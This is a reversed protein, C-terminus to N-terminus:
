AMTEKKAHRCGLVVERIKPTIGTRGPSLNEADERAIWIKRDERDTIDLYRGVYTRGTDLRTSARRSSDEGEVNRQYQTPAKKVPEATARSGYALASLQAHHLGALM